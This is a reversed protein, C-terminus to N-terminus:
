RKRPKAYVILSIAFCTILIFVSIFITLYLRNVPIGFLSIYDFSIFYGKINLLGQPLITRLLNYARYEFSLGGIYETTCQYFYRLIILPSLTIIISVALSPLQKRFLVSVLATIAVVTYYFLLKCLLKIFLFTGLSIVYPCFEYESYIQIPASLDGINFYTIGVILQVLAAIVAMVTVILLISTYQRVFLRRQGKKSTFIMRYTGSSFDMTLIRVTIMIFLAVAAFEWTTDDFYRYTDEISGTAVMELEIVKNYKEIVIENTRITTKNPNSNNEEEFINYVADEILYTRNNPFTKYVYDATSYAARYIFSDIMLNAGYEGEVEFAKDGLENVEYTINECKNYLETCIEDGSKGSERIESLFKEYANNYAERSNDQERSRTASVVFMAFYVIVIFFCIYMYWSSFLKKIEM